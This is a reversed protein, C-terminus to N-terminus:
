SGWTCSMLGTGPMQMWLWAWWTVNGTPLTQNRLLLSYNPGQRGAGTSLRCEPLARVNGSQGDGHPLLGLLAQRQGAGCIGSSKKERHMGVKYCLNAKGTIQNDEVWCFPAWSKNELRAKDNNFHNEARISRLCPLNFPLPSLSFPTTGGSGRVSVLRSLARSGAYIMGVFLVSAPLWALVHSRFLPLFLLLM